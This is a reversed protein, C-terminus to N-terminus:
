KLGFVNKLFNEVQECTHFIENNSDIVFARFNKIVMQFTIMKPYNPYEKDKIKFFYMEDNNSTSFYFSGLKDAISNMRNKIDKKCDNISMDLIDYKLSAEPDYPETLYQQNEFAPDGKKLDDSYIRRNEFEIHINKKKAKILIEDIWEHQADITGQMNSEGIVIKNTDDIRMVTIYGYKKPDSSWGYDLGDIIKKMVLDEIFSQHIFKNTIPLILDGDKTIIGRVSRPFDDLYGPNVHIDYIVNDRKVSDVFKEFTKVICNENMHPMDEVISKEVDELTKCTNGNNDTVKIDWGTSITFESEWHDEKSTPKISIYFVRDPDGNDTEDKIRIKLNLRKSLEKLKDKIYKLDPENSFKIKTNPNYKITPDIEISPIVNLLKREIDGIKNYSGTGDQDFIDVNVMSGLTFYYEDDDKSFTIWELGDQSGSMVGAIVVKLGLRKGLNEMSDLIFDIKQHLDFYISAEPDYPETLYQQNELIYQNYSKM